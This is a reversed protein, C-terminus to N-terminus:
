LLLQQTYTHLQVWSPNFNKISNIPKLIPSHGYFFPVTVAFGAFGTPGTHLCSLSTFRRAALNIGFGLAASAIIGQGAGCFIEKGRNWIIKKNRLCAQLSTGAKSYACKTTLDFKESILLAVFSIAFSKAVYLPYRVIAQNAAFSICNGITSLASM